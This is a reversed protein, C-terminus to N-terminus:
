GKEAKRGCTQAPYEGFFGFYEGGFRGEHYLGCSMAVDILRQHPEIRLLCRCAENYRVQKLYRMPTTGYHELFGLHLSRETCGVAACIDSICIPHEFHNFLYDRALRASRLRLAATEDFLSPSLGLLLSIAM